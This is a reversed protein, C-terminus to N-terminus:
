YKPKSRRFRDLLALLVSGPQHQHRDRLEEIASKVRATFEEVTENKGCYLPEGFYTRLKVPYGGFAICLPFRVKDYFERILGDACFSVMDTFQRINQTFMPVVPKGSDKTMQAFGRRRRWELSYERSFMAEYAGGPSVSLYRGLRLLETCHARNGCTAGMVEAMIRVGPTRYLTKDIVAVIQQNLFKHFVASIYIADIPVMGHYYVILAGKAPIRDLGYVEYGHYIRAISWWMESVVRHLWAKLRGRSDDWFFTTGKYLLSLLIM